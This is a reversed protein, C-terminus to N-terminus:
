LQRRRRRRGRMATSFLEKVEIVSISQNDQRILGSVLPRSSVPPPELRSLEFEGDISEVALALQEDGRLAVIFACTSDKRNGDEELLRLPDLVTLIRGQISVVGLVAAPANPLPTPRRWPAVTSILNASIGISLKGARFAQIRESRPSRSLESEHFSESSESNILQPQQDGLKDKSM